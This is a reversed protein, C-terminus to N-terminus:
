PHEPTELRGAQVDEIDIGGSFTSDKVHVGTGESKVRRVRLFDARIAELDIGVVPAAGPDHIAVRDVVQRAAELLEEDTAIDVEALDEHLSNRRAASNPKREVASVDVHRRGLLQKLGEYSDKVAAAATDKLGAEAGLAVASVVLAIADPEM